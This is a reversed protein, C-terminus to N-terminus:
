IIVHSTLKVIKNAHGKIYKENKVVKKSSIKSKCKKQM